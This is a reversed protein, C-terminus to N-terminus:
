MGDLRRQIRVDSPSPEESSILNLNVQSTSGRFDLNAHSGRKTAFLNTSNEHDLMDPLQYFNEPLGMKALVVKNNTSTRFENSQLLTSFFSIINITRSDIEKSTSGSSFLSVKVYDVALTPYLSKVLDQVDVIEKHRLYVKQSINLISIEIVYVITTKFMGSRSETGVVQVEIPHSKKEVKQNRKLLTEM